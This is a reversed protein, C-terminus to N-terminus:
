LINCWAVGFSALMQIYSFSEYTVHLCCLSQDAKESMNQDAGESNESLIESYLLIYWYLPPQLWVASDQLSIQTKVTQM